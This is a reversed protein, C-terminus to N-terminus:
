EDVIADYVIQTLEDSPGFICYTTDGRHQMRAYFFGLYRFMEILDAETDDLDFRASVQTNLLNYFAIADNSTEWLVKSVFVIEGTEQDYYISYTDGGWGTVAALATEAAQRAQPDVGNTFM